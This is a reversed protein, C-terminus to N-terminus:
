GILYMFFKIGYKLDYITYKIGKVMTKFMKKLYFISTMLKSSKIWMISTDDTPCANKKNWKSNQAIRSTM